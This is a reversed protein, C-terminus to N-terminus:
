PETGGYSFERSERQLALRVSRSLWSLRGNPIRHGKTRLQRALAAQSLHAGEREADRLISAAAEILRQDSPNVPTITSEPPEILCTRPLHSLSEAM